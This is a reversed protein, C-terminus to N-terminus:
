YTEPQIDEWQWDPPIKGIAALFRDCVSRVEDKNAQKNFFQTTWNQAWIYILEYIQAPSPISEMSRGVALAQYHPIYDISTLYEFGYTLTSTCALIANNLQRYPASIKKNKRLVQELDQCFTKVEKAFPFKLISIRMDSFSDIALDM